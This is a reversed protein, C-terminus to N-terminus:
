HHVSVATFLSIIIADLGSLAINIILISLPLPDPRTAPVSKLDTQSATARRKTHEIRM